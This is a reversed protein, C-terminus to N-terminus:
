RCGAVTSIRCLWRLGCAYRLRVFERQVAAFRDPAPFLPAPRVNAVLEVQLIDSLPLLITTAVTVANENLPSFIQNQDFAVLWRMEVDLFRALPFDLSREEFIRRAHDLYDESFRRRFDQSLDFFLGLLM